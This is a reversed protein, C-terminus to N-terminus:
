HPIESTLNIPESDTVLIDDEIRFGGPVLWRELVEWDVQPAYKERNAPDNLLAPIFYIGPEVTALFGPELKLDCRPTVGCCRRKEGRGPGVGSADRVGLGLLHGVGHPFFLAIAETELAEDPSCRLIGLDKLGFAIGRAAQRHIDHWEVGPRCALCAAREVGDLIALLEAQQSTFGSPGPLTRTVDACYGEVEAGADVLVQEGVALARSGPEAHFIASTPGFGVITDYAVATAGARAFATEIEIQLQRETLGERLAERAAAFGAATASVARYMLLLEAEDKPRRAELTKQELPSTTSDHGAGLHTIAKGQRAELWAPLESLARGRNLPLLGEWVTDMATVTPFFETWGDSPDYALVADRVSLGTLWRFHPHVKFPFCQDQGGPRGIQGGAHVLVIEDTGWAAAARARRTELMTEM